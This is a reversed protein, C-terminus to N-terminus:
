RSARGPRERRVRGRAPHRLARRDRPPGARRVRRGPRDAGAGRRPDARDALRVRVALARRRRAGGRHRRHGAVGLWAVAGVAPRMRGWGIHMGGDFLIVALAVTVIRQDTVITLTAWGRCSDSAVAALVLFLAPAPVRLREAVRNSGIAVLVAAAVLLLILAYPVLDNM